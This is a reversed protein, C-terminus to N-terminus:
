AIPSREAENTLRLKTFRCFRDLDKTLDGYCTVRHLTHSWNKWLKEADGDIEVTIKTRCGRDVDPVEIVKGTFYLLQDPLIMLAQTVRQGERMMVQPVAGEQREMITRLKYPAAPGDPGDMKTTGLCHALIASNKSVDMTPDSIFGPRGVLGQFLVHTLASRLDSECIGGLGMNNLRTFGICPFAPLQRYMSGYCDVTIVTANEEDLLKEFALALRCSRIIEDKSPEVVAQAGAIWRNAEARADAEPVAEYAALIRPRDIVTLETGFRDKITQVDADSPARSTVNLIKAERLHHIARFPRIGVALQDYDSTLLCELLAGEPKRQLDGFATWEHGSYPAAFLVTPRGLALVQPLIERVGMGLHIALIGDVDGLADKLQAAQEPSTVLANGVFEVDALEPGLRDFEAQYKRMEADLDMKPTPWLHPTGSMYIRGVRVKSRRCGPSILRSSPASGAAWLGRAGLYYVAGGAITAQLFARRHMKTSM